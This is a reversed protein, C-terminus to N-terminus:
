LEALIRRLGERLGVEATWGLEARARSVDLCSRSVEGPRAPAFEPEALPGRDSVDNLADILDLVSTEEGRGINFPGTVDSEAAMLNARAVDSVEVWDRTQRGDGYVTPRRGDILAGCFIAVM